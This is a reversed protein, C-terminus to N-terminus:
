VELRNEPLQKGKDTEQFAGSYIEECLNGRQFPKGLVQLKAACTKVVM